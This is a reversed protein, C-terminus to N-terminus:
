PSPEQNKGSRGDPELRGLRRRAARRDFVAALSKKQDDGAAAAVRTNRPGGIGLSRSIGFYKEPYDEASVMEM